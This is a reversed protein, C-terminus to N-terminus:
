PAELPPLIKQITTFFTKKPPPPPPVRGPDVERFPTGRWGVGGHESEAVQARCGALDRHLSPEVVDLILPRWLYEALLVGIIRRAVCHAHDRVFKGVFDDEAEASTYGSDGFGLDVEDALAGAVFFDPRHVVIAGVLLRDRM